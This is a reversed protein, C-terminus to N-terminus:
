ELPMSCAIFTEVQHRNTDIKLVLYGGVLKFRSVLRTLLVPAVREDPVNNPRKESVPIDRLLGWGPHAHAGHKTVHGAEAFVVKLAAVLGTTQSGLLHIRSFM